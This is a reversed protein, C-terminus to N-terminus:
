LKYDVISVKVWDGNDKKFRINAGSYSMKGMNVSAGDPKEATYGDVSQPLYKELDAFPMALTDGKARREKMKAAYADETGKTDMGAAAKIAEAQNVMTQANSQDNSDSKKDSSGCSILSSALVTSLLVTGLKNM